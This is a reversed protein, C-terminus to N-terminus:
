VCIAEAGKQGFHQLGRWLSMQETMFLVGFPEEKDLFHQQFDYRHDYNRPKRPHLNIDHNRPGYKADMMDDSDVGTTRLAQDVNTDTVGVGVGVGTIIGDTETDADDTDNTGADTKADADDTDELDDDDNDDACENTSDHPDNGPDDDDNIHNDSNDNDELTNQHQVVQSV